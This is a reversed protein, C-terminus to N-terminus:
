SVRKQLMLLKVITLTRHRFKHLLERLSTGIHSLSLRIICRVLLEVPPDISEGIYMSSENGKDRLSVEISNYFQPLLETSSFDRDFPL